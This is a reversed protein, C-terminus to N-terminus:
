FPAHSNAVRRIGEIVRDVRGAEAEFLAKLAPALPHRTAIQYLMSRGHGLTEVVSEATLRQLAKHVNSRTLRTQDVLSSASLAGGHRVLARLVRVESVSGLLADIPNHFHSKPAARM